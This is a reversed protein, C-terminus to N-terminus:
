ERPAPPVPGGGADDGDAAAAPAPSTAPATLKDIEAILSDRQREWLDVDRQLANIENQLSAKRGALETELNTLQRRLDTLDAEGRVVQRDTTTRTEGLKAVEAELAEREDMPEPALRYTWYREVEIAGDRWRLLHGPPLQHVGDLLTWPDAVSRDVLLAVLSRRDLQRPVSPPELLSALESSFVLEGKPGHWYYLPKIGIPDRVLTVSDAVRFHVAFGFMGNLADLSREGRRAWLELVVETDTTTRLRAGERELAARQAATDYCEGNYVITFRGDATTMPQSGSELDLISLRRMGMAVRGLGIAGGEDPGRHRLRRNMATVAGLDARGEPVITGNIGCMPFPLPRPESGDEVIPWRRPNRYSGDAARM